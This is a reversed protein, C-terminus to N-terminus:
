NQAGTAKQWCVAEESGESMLWEAAFKPDQTWHPVLRVVGGRCGVYLREDATRVISTPEYMDEPLRAFTTLEGSQSTRWIGDWTLVLWTGDGQLLWDVPETLYRAIVRSTFHDHEHWLVSLQGGSYGLHSLGQLVFVRGGVSMARKVNQAVLEDDSAGIVISRPDSGDRAYWEIGGGFEGHDFLVLWGSADEFVYKVVQAHDRSMRSLLATPITAKQRMTGRLQVKGADLRVEYTAGRMAAGYCDRPRGAALPAVRWGAPASEAKPMATLVRLPMTATPGELGLEKPRVVITYSGERTPYRCAFDLM